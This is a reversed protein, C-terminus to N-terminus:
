GSLRSLDPPPIVLSRESLGLRGLEERAGIDEAVLMRALFPVLYLPIYHVPKGARLETSFIPLACTQVGTM